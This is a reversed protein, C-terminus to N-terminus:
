VLKVSAPVCNPLMRAVSTNMGIAASGSSARRLQPQRIGNRSLAM